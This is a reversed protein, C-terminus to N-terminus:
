FGIHQVGDIGEFMKKNHAITTLNTYIKFLYSM